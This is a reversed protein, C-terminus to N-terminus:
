QVPRRTQHKDDDRSRHHGRSRPSTKDAGLSPARLQTEAVLRFHYTNGAHPRDRRRRRSLDHRQSALNQPRKKTYPNETLGYEFFYTTAHGNPQRKGAADSRNRRCRDGRRDDCAAPRRGSLKIAATNTGSTNEAVLRFHYTTAPTLGTVGTSATDPSTGAAVSTKGTATFSM